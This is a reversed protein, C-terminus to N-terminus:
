LQCYEKYLCALQETKAQLQKVKNELIAIPQSIDKLANLDNRPSKKVFSEEIQGLVATFATFPVELSKLSQAQEIVQAARDAKEKLALIAQKMKPKQMEMKKPKTLMPHIEIVVAELKRIAESLSILVQTQEPTIDGLSEVADVDIAVVTSSLESLSPYVEVISLVGSAPQGIEEIKSRLQKVQSELMTMPQIVEKLAELDNRPQKEDFSLEISHITDHLTEVPVQLTQLSVTQPIVQLVKTLEVKLSLLAQKVNPLNLKVEEPRDFAKRCSTIAQKLKQLPEALSAVTSAQEENIDPISEDCISKLIEVSSLIEALPTSINSVSSVIQSPKAPLEQTKSLAVQLEKIQESISLLVQIDKRPAQETCNNEITSM